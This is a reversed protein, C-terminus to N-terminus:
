NAVPKREIGRPRTGHNRVERAWAVRNVFRTVRGSPLLEALEDATLKFQKALAERAEQMTHVKGDAALQLTPLMLTQFDPIAM